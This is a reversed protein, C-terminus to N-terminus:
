DQRAAGNEKAFLGKFDACVQAKVPDGAEAMEATKPRFLGHFRTDVSVFGACRNANQERMSCRQRRETQM